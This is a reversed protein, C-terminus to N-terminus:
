QKLFDKKYRETERKKKEIAIERGVFGEDKLENGDTLIPSYMYKILPLNTIKFYVAYTQLIKKNVHYKETLNSLYYAQDIDDYKDKYDKLFFITNLDKGPFKLNILHKYSDKGLEVKDLIIALWIRYWIEPKYNGHLPLKDPIYIEIGSFMQEFMNYEELLKLYALFMKYKRNEVAYEMMKYVEEVIREQSLERIQNKIKLMLYQTNKDITFNYRAAFRVVRLIRLPDDIFANLNTIKIIKNKLDNLGNYPDIFNGNLDLAVSNITIDRRFLDDELTINKNSIIEFGKHGKGIKKETRPISIDYIEGKYNYKIVSFSEGVLDSKGYKNLVELLEDMDCGVVILDIDKVPKNLLFDRVCGGVFYPKWNKSIIDQIFNTNKLNQMRFDLIKRM